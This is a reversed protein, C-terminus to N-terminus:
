PTPSDVHPFSPPTITNTGHEPLPTNLTISLNTLNRLRDIESQMNTMKQMLNAIHEDYPILKMGKSNEPEDRMFTVLGLGNQDFASSDTMNARAKSRTFYPNDALEYDVCILEPPPLSSSTGVNSPGAEANDLYRMINEM